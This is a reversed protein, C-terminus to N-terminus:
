LKPILLMRDSDLVTNELENESMLLDLGTNHKKAINWLSEGESAYYLTLACSDPPIPKDDFIEVASTLPTTM